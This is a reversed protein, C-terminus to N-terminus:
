QLTAGSQAIPHRMEMERVDASISDTKRRHTKARCVASKRLGMSCRVTAM